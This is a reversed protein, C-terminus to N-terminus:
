QKITKFGGRREIAEGKRQANIGWCVGKGGPSAFTYICYLMCRSPTFIGTRDISAPKIFVLNEAPIEAALSGSIV